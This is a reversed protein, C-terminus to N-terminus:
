ALGLAAEAIQVANLAAGKRLNDSVVWMSIGHGEPPSDRLRGVFVEDRGEAFRPTSYSSVDKGDMLCVGPSSRLVNAVESADTKTKTILTVAESHCRFVPVRVATVSLLLSEDRLFRKTEFVIKREELSLKENDFDGIHPFLNFAIENPYVEKELPRGDLHAQSQERLELMAKGGTGSVSQYTAVFLHEIGWTRHIPEVALVLQIASCNPNAIIGRRGRAENGNVEPIVLPIGRDARFASSNDVVLAGHSALVPAFEKSVSGGASFFAVEIGELSSVDLAQVTLSKGKFQKLRGASRRSAFLRFEGVPFDREELIKVLECGVAGTAGIIAVSYKRV